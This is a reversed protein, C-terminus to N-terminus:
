RWAFSQYKEEFILYNISSKFRLKEAESIIELSNIALKAQKFELLDNSFIAGNKWKM